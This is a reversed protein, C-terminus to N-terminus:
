PVLGTKSVLWRGDTRTLELVWRNNVTTGNPAQKSVILVTVAVAVEASDGDLSVVGGKVSQVTWRAQAQTAAAIVTRSQTGWQNKAEGTLGTLVQDINKQINRYDLSGMNVATQRAAQLAAERDAARDRARWVQTGLLGAVVTLAVVAALLSAALVRGPRRSLAAGLNRAM